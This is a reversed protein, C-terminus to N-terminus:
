ISFFITSQIEKRLGLSRAALFLIFGIAIFLVTYSGAMTISQTILTAASLHKSPVQPSPLRKNLWHCVAFTVILISLILCIHFLDFHTNTLGLPGRFIDALSSKEAPNGKLWTNLTWGELFANSLKIALSRPTCLISVISASSFGATHMSLWTALPLLLLNKSKFEEQPPYPLFLNPLILGCIIALIPNFGLLTRTLGLLVQTILLFFLYQPIKHSEKHVLAFAPIAILAGALGWLSDPKPIFSLFGLLFLTGELALSGPQPNLSLGGSSTVDGSVAQGLFGAFFTATTLFLCFSVPLFQTSYSAVLLSTLFANGIGQRCLIFSLVPLVLLFLFM